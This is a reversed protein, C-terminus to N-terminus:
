SLLSHHSKKTELNRDVVVEPLSTLLAVILTELLFKTYMHQPFYAYTNTNPFVSLRVALVLVLLVM